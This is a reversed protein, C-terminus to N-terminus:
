FGLGLSFVILWHSFEIKKGAVGRDELEGRIYTIKADIAMFKEGGLFGFSLAYIPIKTKETDNETQIENDVASYRTENLTIETDNYGIAMYAALFDFPGQTGGGSLRKSEIVYVLSSMEYDGSITYVSVNDSDRVVEKDEEFQFDPILSYRLGLVQMYIFTLDYVPLYEKTLEYGATATIIYSSQAHSGSEFFYFYIM